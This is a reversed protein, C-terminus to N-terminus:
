RWLIGLQRDVSIINAYDEADSKTTGQTKLITTTNNTAEVPFWYNGFQQVTVMPNTIRFQTDMKIKPSITFISDNFAVSKPEIESEKNSEIHKNQPEVYTSAFKKLAIYGDPLSNQEGGVVKLDKFNNDKDLSIVKAVVWINAIQVLIINGIEM